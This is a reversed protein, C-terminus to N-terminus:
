KRKIIDWGLKKVLKITNIAMERDYLKESEPLQSYSIMDPHLKNVDDRTPGYRWGDKKRNFAWVEHANEAIAERLEILDDSIDVDSLDIPHPEYDNGKSITILYFASDAWADLFQGTPYTDYKQPTSTDCITVTDDNVSEVVVVHDPIEGVELDEIREAVIDGILEGGDVTALVVHGAQLEARIDDLSCGYRHAVGMGHKGALRGINYLATGESQLWGEKKSEELLEEDTIDIGLRRLAIGECRVGCQNDIINQAAMATAPLIKHSPCCTEKSTVEDYLADLRMSFNGPCSTSNPGGDIDLGYDEDMMMVVSELEDPNDMLYQRMVMREDQSANGEAYSALLEDSINAKDEM